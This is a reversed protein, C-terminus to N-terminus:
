VYLLEDLLAAYHSRVLTSPDSESESQSSQAKPTVGKVIAVFAIAMLAFLLSKFLKDFSNFKKMM